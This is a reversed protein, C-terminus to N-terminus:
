LHATKSMCKNAWWVRFKCNSLNTVKFYLNRKENVFSTISNNQDDQFKMQMQSKKIKDQLNQTQSILWSLTGDNISILM